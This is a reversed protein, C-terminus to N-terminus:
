EIYKSRPKLSRTAAMGDIIWKAIQPVSSSVSNSSKMIYNRFDVKDSSYLSSDLCTINLQRSTPKATIVGFAKKDEKLVLIIKPPNERKTVQKLM